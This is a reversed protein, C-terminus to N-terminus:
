LDYNNLRQQQEDVVETLLCIAKELEKNKAQLNTVLEVVNLNTQKWGENEKQLREIHDTICDFLPQCPLGIDNNASVYERVKDTAERYFNVKALLSENEKTLERIFPLIKDHISEGLKVNMVEGIEQIPSMVEMAREKWAKLEDLEKEQERGDTALQYGFQIDTRMNELGESSVHMKQRNVYEDIKDQIEKPITSM